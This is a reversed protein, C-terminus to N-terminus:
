RPFHVIKPPLTLKAQGTEQAQATNARKRPTVQERLKANPAFVGHFRTLNVRPKPVLAALRAIVHVSASIGRACPHAPATFDLPEFVVETTGDRYPTKLQYVVEGQSTLSLRQISVAPRTIYRCLRELKEREHGLTAVDAHLSFGAMKVLRTDSQIMEEKPGLRQVTFAKRGQHAGVAIRYLISSGLLDDMAGQEVSELSLSSNEADIELLGERHLYRGVRESIQYLLSSLEEHSPAKVLKFKVGDADTVYVGDLV